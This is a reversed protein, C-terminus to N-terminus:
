PLLRVIMCLRVLKMRYSKHSMDYWRQSKQHGVAGIKLTRKIPSINGKIIRSSSTKLRTEYALSRLITVQERWWYATQAVSVDPAKVDRVASVSLAARLIRVLSASLRSRYQPYVLMLLRWSLLYVRTQFTFACATLRFGNLTRCTSVVAVAIKFRTADM